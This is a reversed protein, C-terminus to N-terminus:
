WNFASRWPNIPQGGYNFRTTSFKLLYPELKGFKYSLRQDEERLSDSVSRSPSDGAGEYNDYHEKIEQLFEHLEAILDKTKM